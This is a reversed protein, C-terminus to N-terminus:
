KHACREHLTPMVECLVSACVRVCERERHARTEVDESQSYILLQRGEIRGWCNLWRM